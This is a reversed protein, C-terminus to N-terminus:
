KCDQEFNDAKSMEKSDTQTEQSIRVKGFAAALIKAVATRSVEILVVTECFIWFDSLVFKSVDLM